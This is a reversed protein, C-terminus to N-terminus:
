DLVDFLPKGTVDYTYKLRDRFEPSTNTALLVTKITPSDFKAKNVLVDRKSKDLDGQKDTVFVMIRGIKVAEAAIQDANRQVVEPLTAAPSGTGNSNVVSSGSAALLRAAFGTAFYQALTGNANVQQVGQDNKAGGGAQGNFTALVSYTDVAGQGVPGGGTGTQGVFQRCKDDACEAPKLTGGVDKNALLPMWVAESRKYGLTVGLAGTPDQSVDLAFKTTTGFVLTNSHRPVSECGCLLLLCFAFLALLPPPAVPRSCYM